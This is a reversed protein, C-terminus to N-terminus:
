LLLVMEPYGPEIYFFGQKLYCKGNDTCDDLTIQTVHNRRCEQILRQLLATAIGQKRWQPAVYLNCLYFNNKEFYGACVGTDCPVVHPASMAEFCTLTLLHGERKKTIM